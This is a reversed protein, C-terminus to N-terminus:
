LNSFTCNLTLWAPTHKGKGHSGSVGYFSFNMVTWLECCLILILHAGAGKNALEARQPICSYAPSSLGLICSKAIIREKGGCGRSYKTHLWLLWLLSKPGLHHLQLLSSHCECMPITDIDTHTGNYQECIHPGSGVKISLITTLNWKGLINKNRAVEMWRGTRFIVYYLKIFVESKKERKRM